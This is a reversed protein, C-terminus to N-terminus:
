CDGFLFSEMAADEGGEVTLDGDCDSCGGYPCTDWVGECDEPEWGEYDQSDYWDDVDVDGYRSVADGCGCCPADECRGGKYCPLFEYDTEYLSM